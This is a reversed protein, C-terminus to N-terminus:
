GLRSRVICDKAELLKRLGSAVEAPHETPREAIANALEAFPRSVEQLHAPLHEYKFFALIPYSM